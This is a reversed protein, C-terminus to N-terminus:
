YDWFIDLKNYILTHQDQTILEMKYAFFIISKIEFYIKKIQDKNIKKSMGAEWHFFNDIERLIEKYYDGKRIRYKTTVNSDILM